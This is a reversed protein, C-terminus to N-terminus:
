ISSFKLFIPYNHEFNPGFNPWNIYSTVKEQFINNPKRPPVDRGFGFKLVGSPSVYCGTVCVLVGMM